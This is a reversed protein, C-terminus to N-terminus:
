RSSSRRVFERLDRLLADARGRLSRARRLLEVARPDQAAQGIGRAAEEAESAAAESDRWAHLREEIDM